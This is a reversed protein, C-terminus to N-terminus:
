YAEEIGELAIMLDLHFSFILLFHGKMYITAGEAVTFHWEIELINTCSVLAQHVFDKYVLNVPIDLYLDIVHDDFDM